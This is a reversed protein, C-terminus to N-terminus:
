RELALFLFCLLIGIVAIVITFIIAKELSSGNKSTDENVRTM